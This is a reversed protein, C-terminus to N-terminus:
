SIDPFESMEAIAPKRVVHVSPTFCLFSSNESVPCETDSSARYYTFRYFNVHVSFCFLIHALSLRACM